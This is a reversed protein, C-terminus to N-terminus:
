SVKWSVLEQGIKTLSPAGSLRSSITLNRSSCAKQSRSVFDGHDLCSKETRGLEKDLSQCLGVTSSPTNEIM